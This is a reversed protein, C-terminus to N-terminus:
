QTFAPHQAYHQSHLSIHWSKLRRKQFSKTFYMWFLRPFFFFLFFLHTYGDEEVHTWHCLVIFSTEPPCLSLFKHFLLQWSCVTCMGCLLAPLADWIIGAEVAGCSQKLRKEMLSGFFLRRFASFQHQRLESRNWSLIATFHSSERWLSRWFCWRSYNLVLQRSALTSFSSLLLLPTPTLFFVTAASIVYKPM